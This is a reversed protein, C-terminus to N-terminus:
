FKLVHNTLSYVIIKYLFFWYIGKSNPYKWINQNLARRRLSILVTWFNGQGNFGGLVIWKPINAKNEEICAKM